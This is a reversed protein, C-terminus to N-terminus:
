LMRDAVAVADAVAVDGDREDEALDLVDMADVEVDVPVVFVVVFVVVVVVVVVM